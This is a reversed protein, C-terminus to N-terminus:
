YVLLGFWMFLCVFVCVNMLYKSSVGFMEREEETSHSGRMVRDFTCLRWFVNRGEAFYGKVVKKAHLCGGSVFLRVEFANLIHENM